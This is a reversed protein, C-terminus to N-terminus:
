KSEMAIKVENRSGSKIDATFGSTEPKQYKEPIDTPPPNVGEPLQVSVKHKGKPVNVSEYHGGNFLISVVPPKVNPDDNTFVLRGAGVPKGDTTIDGGVSCMEVSSGGGGCGACAAALLFAISWSGAGRFGRRTAMVFDM